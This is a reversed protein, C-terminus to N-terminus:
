CAIIELMNLCCKISAVEWFESGTRLSKRFFKIDDELAEMMKGSSKSEDGSESNTKEM